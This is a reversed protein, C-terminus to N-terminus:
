INNNTSAYSMNEKKENSGSRGGSALTSLVGVPRLILVGILKNPKTHNKDTRM